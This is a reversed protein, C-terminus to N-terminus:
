IKTENHYGKVISTFNIVIPVLVSYLWFILIYVLVVECEHNMSGIKLAWVGTKRWMKVLWKRKIGQILVFLVTKISIIVLEIISLGNSYLLNYASQHELIREKERLVFSHPTKWPLKVYVM